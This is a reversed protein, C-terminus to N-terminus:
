DDSSNGQPFRFQIAEKLDMNYTEKGASYQVEYMNKSWDDKDQELHRTYENILSELHELEAMPYIYSIFEGKETFKMYTRIPLGMRMMQNNAAMFVVFSDSIPKVDSMMESLISKATNLDYHETLWKKLKKMKRKVLDSYELKNM